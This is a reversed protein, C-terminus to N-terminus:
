SLAELSRSSLKEPVGMLMWSFSNVIVGLRQEIEYEHVSITSAPWSVEEMEHLSMRDSRSKSPELM